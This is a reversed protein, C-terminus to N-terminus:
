FITFVVVQYRKDGLKGEDKNTKLRAEILKWKFTGDITRYQGIKDIHLLKTVEVVTDGIGKRFYVKPPNNPFNLIQAYEEITHTIDIDEFTFCRYNPNWFHLM